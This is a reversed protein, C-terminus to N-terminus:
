SGVKAPRRYGDDADQALLNSWNAWRRTLRMGAEFSFQPQYGLMRKAKDIRFVTKTQYLRITLPDLPELPKENKSSTLQAQAAAKRKLAAKKLSQRYGASVFRRTLQRLLEAERTRLLRRRIEPESFVLRVGENLLSPRKQQSAKYAARAEEASMNVTASVGLMSEFRAYFVKWTIPREAAILFTEGIAEKRVSAVMMASVLDDVYVPSCLGDGGDILILRESKLRQLVNQTWVTAYPGYVEAPQLVTVPLGWRQGYHMVLKEADLKSDPYVSGLYRRPAREDLDGDPTVGYVLVTSLHVLRGIRKTIAANLVYQTGQLNVARQQEETGTNGYACHFIVDCGDAARAVSEPDTVDGRVFEIPFRAIRCAGPLNRVLVRISVWCETSLREVLRGGIFGTGGTVLVRKGALADKAQQLSKM